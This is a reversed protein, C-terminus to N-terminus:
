LHREAIAESVTSRYEDASKKNRHIFVRYLVDSVTLMAMRAGVSGIETPAETAGCFLIEDSEKGLPSKSFASVLVTHVGLKKALALLELGSKTAGSYSFLLLVDNKKMGALATFQIHLDRVTIFKNSVLSFLHACEEAAIAGGGTGICLIREASEFLCVVREISEESLAKGAMEIAKFSEKMSEGIVSKPEGETEKATKDATAKALEIKFSYFGSLSLRRCLRTVTADSVKASEALESISIHQIKDTDSLIEAAVRQEALPLTYFLSHLKDIINCCNM